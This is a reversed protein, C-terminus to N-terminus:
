ENEEVELNYNVVQKAKIVLEANYGEIQDVSQIQYTKGKYEIYMFATIYRKNITATIYNQFTTKGNEMIEPSTSFIVYASIEFDTLYKKYQVTYGDLDEKTVITFVKIKKDKIPYRFQETM